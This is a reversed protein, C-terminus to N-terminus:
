WRKGSRTMMMIRVRTDIRTTTEMITRVKIGKRLTRIIKNLGKDRPESVMMERHVYKAGEDFDLDTYRSAKIWAGVINFNEGGTAEFQKTFLIIETRLQAMYQAVIEELIRKKNLAEIVNTGVSKDVEWTRWVRNTKM